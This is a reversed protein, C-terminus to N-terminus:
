KVRGVCAIRWNFTCTIPGKQCTAQPQAPLLERAAVERPAETISRVVRLIQILIAATPLVDDGCHLGAADAKDMSIHNMCRSWIDVRIRNPETYEHSPYARQGVKNTKKPPATKAATKAANRSSNQDGESQRQTATSDSKASSHHANFTM